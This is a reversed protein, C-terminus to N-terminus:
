KSPPKFRKRRKNRKMKLQFNERSDHISRAFSSTKAKGAAAVPAAGAAFGMPMMATDPLNLKRKLLGSLESVELLNLSAIQDVISDLKPNIPKDAGEPVPITLKEGGASQTQVNKFVSSTRMSRASIRMLNLM